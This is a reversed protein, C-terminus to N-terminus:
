PKLYSIKVIGNDYQFRIKLKKMARTKSKYIGYIKIKDTTGASDIYFKYDGDFEGNLYTLSALPTPSSYHLVYYNLKNEVDSQSSVNSEYMDYLIYHLVSEATYYANIGESREILQEAQKRISAGMSIMIIASVVLLSIVIGLLLLGKESFNM